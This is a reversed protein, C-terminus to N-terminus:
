KITSHDYISYERSHNHFIPPIPQFSRTGEVQTAAVGVFATSALLIESEQAASIRAFETAVVTM